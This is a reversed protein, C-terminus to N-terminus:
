LLRNANLIVGIELGGTYGIIAKDVCCGTAIMISTPLSIGRLSVMGIKVPHIYIAWPGLGFMVGGFNQLCMM